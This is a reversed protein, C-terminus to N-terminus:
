EGFIAKLLFERIATLNYMLPLGRENHLPCDDCSVNAYGYCGDVAFGLQMMEKARILKKLCAIELDM